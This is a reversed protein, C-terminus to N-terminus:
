QTNIFVDSNRISITDGVAPRFTTISIYTTQSSLSFSSGSSFTGSGWAGALSQVNSSQVLNDGVFTMRALFNFGASTSTTDSYSCITTDSTTNASGFRVSIIKGSGNTSIINGMVYVELSNGSKITGAPITYTFTVTTISAGGSGNVPTRNYNLLYRNQPINVQSLETSGSYFTTATISTASLNTTIINQNLFAM